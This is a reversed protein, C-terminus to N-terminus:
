SQHARSALPANSSVLPEATPARNRYVAVLVVALLVLATGAAAPPTLREGVLFVGLFVAVVPNVYAYSTALAPRV